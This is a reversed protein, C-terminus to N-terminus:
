AADIEKELEDVDAAPLRALLENFLVRCAAGQWKASYLDEPLTPVRLILRRWEHVVVVRLATRQLLPLQELAQTDRLLSLRMALEQSAVQAAPTCLKDSLWQPIDDQPGIALALQQDAADTKTTVFTKPGIQVATNTRRGLLTETQATPADMVLYAQIDAPAPGYVRPWAANTENRGTVTLAYRTQRGTRHSEIWGEKRLRHLAVRTAEPKIGIAATIANVTLGSLRADSAVALDGFMTVLLSWVRPTSHGLVRTVLHTFDADNM